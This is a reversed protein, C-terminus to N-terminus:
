AGLDSDRDLIATWVRCLRYHALKASCGHHTPPRGHQTGKAGAACCANSQADLEISEMPGFVFGLIIRIRTTFTIGIFHRGVRGIDNSRLRMAFPITTLCTTLLSSMWSPTTQHTQDDRKFIAAFSQLSENEDALCSEHSRKATSYNRLPLM